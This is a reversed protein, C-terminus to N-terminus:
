RGMPPMEERPPQGIGTLSHIITALMLAIVVGHLILSGSALINNGSPHIQALLSATMCGLSLATLLASLACLLKWVGRGSARLWLLVPLLAVACVGM